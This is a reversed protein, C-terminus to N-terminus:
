FCDDGQMKKLMIESGDEFFNHNAAYFDVLLDGEEV